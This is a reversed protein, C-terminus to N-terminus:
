WNSIRIDEGGARLFEARSFVPEARSGVNEHLLIKGDFSGVLLDLRGDGDHDVVAPSPYGHLETVDIALGAAELLVAPEFRAVEELPIQSRPTSCAALVLLPLSAKVPITTRANM